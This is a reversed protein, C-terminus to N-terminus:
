VTRRLCHSCRCPERRAPERTLDAAALAEDVAAAFAAMGDRLIAADLWFPRWHGSVSNWMRRDSSFARGHGHWRRSDCFICVWEAPFAIDFHDVVGDPARWPFPRPDPRTRLGVLGERGGREIISDSGDLELEAILQDVVK